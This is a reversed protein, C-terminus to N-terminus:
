WSLDSKPAKTMGIELQVYGSLLMEFCKQQLEQPCNGVLELIRELAANGNKRM